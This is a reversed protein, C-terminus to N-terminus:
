NAAKWPTFRGDATRAATWLRGDIDDVAMFTKAGGLTGRVLMSYTRGALPVNAASGLVTHLGDPLAGWLRDVPGEPFRFGGVEVYGPKAAIQPDIGARGMYAGDPNVWVVHQEGRGHWQGASNVSVEGDNVSIVSARGNVDSNMSTFLLGYFPGLNGIGVGPRSRYNESEGVWVFEDDSGLSVNRSGYRNYATLGSGTIEVRSGGPTGAIFKGSAIMQTALKEVVLDRFTGTGAVINEVYVQQFAATGAAIRQAVVRNLNSTGTATLQEVNLQLFTGVGAAIKQAVVDNLTSTGTAVLQGVELTLFRGVGAAIKQAVVDNLTSTGTAVLQEVSLKLFTGVAAAVDDAKIQRGTISGDVLLEGGVKSRLRMQSLATWATAAGAPRGYDIRLVGLVSAAPTWQATIEHWGATSRHDSIIDSPSAAPDAPVFQVRTSAGATATAMRATFRYTVGGEVAFPITTDVTGSGLAQVAGRGSLWDPRATMAEFGVYRGQEDLRGLTGNPILNDATGVMVKEATLLKYYGADAIIKDVVARSMRASGSVTLKNVDLNAILESNIQTIQWRAGTWVWQGIVNRTDSSDWQWWVDGEVLAKGTTPNTVGQAPFESTIVHNGGSASALAQEAIRMAEASSTAAEQSLAEATVDVLRFGAVELVGGAIAMIGVRIGVGDRQETASILKTVRVWQDAPFEATTERNTQKTIGASAASMPAPTFWGDLQFATRISCRVWGELRYARKTDAGTLGMLQPSASSANKEIRVSMRGEPGTGDDRRDGYVVWEDTSGVEALRPLLSANALELALQARDGAEVAELRAAEAAKEARVADTVDVAMLDDVVVQWDGASIWPSVIFGTVQRGAPITVTGEVRVFERYPMQNGRPGFVYMNEATGDAYSARVLLRASVAQSSGGLWRSFWGSVWVSRGQWDGAVEASYAYASGGASAVLRLATGSRAGVTVHEVMSSKPWYLASGTADLETFSGNRVLGGNGAASALAESWAQAATNNAAAADRTAQSALEHAREGSERAARAEAVAGAVETTLREDAAQLDARVTDIQEAAAAIEDLGENLDTRVKALNEDAADIRELGEALDERAKELEKEAEAIAELNAALDDDLQSMERDLERISREHAESDFWSINAYDQLFISGTPRTHAGEATARAGEILDALTTVPDRNLNVRRM